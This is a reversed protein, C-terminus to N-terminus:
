REKRYYGGIAVATEGVATALKSIATAIDGLAEVQALEYNGAEIAEETEHSM